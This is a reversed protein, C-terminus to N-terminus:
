DGCKLPKKVSFQHLIPHLHASSDKPKPESDDDNDKRDDDDNDLDRFLLQSSQCYQLSLVQIDILYSLLFSQKVSCKSMRRNREREKTREVETECNRIEPSVLNLM